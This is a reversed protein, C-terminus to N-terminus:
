AVPKGANFLERTLGVMKVSTRLHDPSYGGPIVLADFDSASVETIARDIRARTQGRKGTIEKGAELGVVVVDHGAQKVREYPVAFESDEFAQDVIFAVKGMRGGDCPLRVYAEVM